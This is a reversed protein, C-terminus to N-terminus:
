PETRKVLQLFWPGENVAKKQVGKEYAPPRENTVRESVQQATTRIIHGDPCVTQVRQM